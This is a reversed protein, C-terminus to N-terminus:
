LVGDRGVQLQLQERERRLRRRPGAKLSNKWGEPPTVRQGLESEKLAVQSNHGSKELHGGFEYRMAWLIKNAVSHEFEEFDFYDPV